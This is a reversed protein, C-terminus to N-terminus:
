RKESYGYTRQDHMKFDDQLAKIVTALEALRQTNLDRSDTSTEIMDKVFGRWIVNQQEMFAISQKSQTELFARWQEDRKSVDARNDASIRLAYFIFLGVLPVQLLLFVQQETM